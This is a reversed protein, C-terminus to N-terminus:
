GRPFSQVETFYEEYKGEEEIFGFHEEYYGGFWVRGTPKYSNLSPMWFFEAVDDGFQRSCEEASGRYFHYSGFSREGDKEYEYAWAYAYEPMDTFDSANIIEFAMSPATEPFAISRVDSDSVSDFDFMDINENLIHTFNTTMM